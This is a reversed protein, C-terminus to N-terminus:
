GGQAAILASLDVPSPDHPISLSYTIPQTNELAIVTAYKWGSPSLDPNDTSALPDSTFSGGALEYTRTDFVVIQDTADTLLTSPAFTVKGRLPQGTADKFHGTVTVTLLDGPLAM